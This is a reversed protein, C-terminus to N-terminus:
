PNIDPEFLPLWVDVHKEFVVRVAMGISVREITCNIINTTLRLGTQEPMEVIAVVYPVKLGPRWVQHNITYTAITAKGSVAEPALDRSLCNPCIPTPPHLFRRCSKCRLFKLRGEAGAVWFFATEPTATPLVRTSPKSDMFAM